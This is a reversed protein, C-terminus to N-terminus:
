FPCDMDLNQQATNKCTAKNSHFVKAKDRYGIYRSEIPDDTDPDIQDIWLQFHKIQFPDIKYEKKNIKLRYLGNVGITLQKGLPNIIKIMPTHAWQRVCYKNKANVAIIKRYPKTSLWVMYGNDIATWINELQKKIM